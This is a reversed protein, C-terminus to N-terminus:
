YQKPQTDVHAGVEEAQISKLLSDSMKQGLYISNNCELLLVTGDPADNEYIVNGIPHNSVPGLYSTFGTATM